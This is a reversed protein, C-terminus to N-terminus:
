IPGQRLSQGLLVSNQATEFTPPGKKASNIANECLAPFLWLNRKDLKQNIWVDVEREIVGSDFHGVSGDNFDLLSLSLFFIFVV